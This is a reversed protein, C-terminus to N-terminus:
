DALLHLYIAREVAEKRSHVNLKQYINKIHAKATNVSIVLDKAVDGASNGQCLLILVELERDSLDKVLPSLIASVARPPREFQIVEEGIKSRFQGLLQLLYAHLPQPEGSIPEERFSALRYSLLARMAAGHDIFSRIRGEPEAMSLARNLTEVAPTRLGKQWQALAQLILAELLHKGLESGELEALLDSAIFGVKDAQDMALYVWGMAIREIVTFVKSQERAELEKRRIWSVASQLDGQALWLQVQFASAESSLNPIYQYIQALQMAKHSCKAAEDFEGHLVQNRAVALYADIAYFWEFTTARTHLFYNIPEILLKDAASIQNWERFIDALGTLPIIRVDVDVRHEDIYDLAQRYVEAAARLRGQLRYFRAKESQSIVFEKHFKHDLANQCARQQAEAGESLKGATQYAYALYHEILGLFFYDEPLLNELVQQSTQISQSSDGKTFSAAARIATVYRQLRAIEVKPIQDNQIQQLNEEVARLHEELDETNGIILNALSYYVMLRPRMKVIGEPLRKFWQFVTALDMQIIARLACSEVIDAALETEGAALAHFVAKDPYGNEKLWHCAALHLRPALDPESRDLQIRLLDAFLAHYRYWYRHEDLPFIFLNSKELYNLMKWSYKHGLIADCLPASLENLISTKLLFDKTSEEQRNLVEEALYDLIHRQSGVFNDIFVQSDQRGQLSIAALQLGAIWGETIDALSAIEDSSIDLDMVLSLFTETEELTFSLDKASIEVLQGRARLRSLPLPPPVRSALILHCNEPMHDIFYTLGRHIAQDRIEHYDDLILSFHFPIDSIENILPNLQTCDTPNCQGRLIEQVNYQLSTHVIQLAAVVYSWFRLPDNDYTDLSVWTILWNAAVITALWEGLLTTKGYGAPAVVLTVRRQM